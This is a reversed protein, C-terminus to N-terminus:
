LLLTDLQYVPLGVAEGKYFFPMKILSILNVVTIFATSQTERQLQTLKM